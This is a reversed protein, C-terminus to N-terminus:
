ISRWPVSKTGFPTTVRVLQQEGDHEVRVDGYPLLEKVTRPILWDFALVISTIHGPIWYSAPEHGRARYVLMNPDVIHRLRMMVPIIGAILGSHIGCAVYDSSAAALRRRQVWVRAPGLASVALKHVREEYTPPGDPVSEKLKQRRARLKSQQKIEDVLRVGIHEILEKDLVPGYERKVWKVAAQRSSPQYSGMARCWLAALRKIQADTDLSAIVIGDLPQTAMLPM